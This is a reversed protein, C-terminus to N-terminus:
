ALLTSPHGSVSMRMLPCLDVGPRYKLTVNVDRGSALRGDWDAGLFPVVDGGTAIRRDILTLPDCRVIRGDQNAYRDCAETHGEAVYCMVPCADCRIKEPRTDSM